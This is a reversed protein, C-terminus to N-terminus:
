QDLTLQAYPTTSHTPHHPAVVGVTSRGTKTAPTNM